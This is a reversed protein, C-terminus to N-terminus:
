QPPCPFAERLASTAVFFALDHGEAPHELVYKRFILALQTVTSGPPLCLHLARQTDGTWQLVSAQQIATIFGWCKGTEFTPDLLVKGDSLHQAEAVPKCFSAMELATIANAPVPAFALLAVAVALDLRKM